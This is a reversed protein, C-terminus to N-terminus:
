ANKLPTTIPNQNIIEHFYYQFHFAFIEVVKSAATCKHRNTLKETEFCTELPLYSLNLILMKECSKPLSSVQSGHQNEQGKM